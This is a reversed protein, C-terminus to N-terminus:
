AQIGGPARGVGSLHSGSSLAIVPHLRAAGGVARNKLQSRQCIARCNDPGVVAVAALILFGAIESLYRALNPQPPGCGGKGFKGSANIRPCPKNFLM